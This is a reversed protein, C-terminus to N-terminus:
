SLPYRYASDAKWLEEAQMESLYLLSGHYFDEVYARHGLFISGWHVMVTLTNSAVYTIVELPINAQQDVLHHGIRFHLLLVLRLGSHYNRSRSIQNQRSRHHVRPTLAVYSLEQEITLLLRSAKNSFKPELIASDLSVWSVPLAM